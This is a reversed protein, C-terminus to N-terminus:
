ATLSFTSLGSRAAQPTGGPREYTSVGTSVAALTQVLGQMHRALSQTANMAIQTQRKVQEMREMLRDRLLALKDRVPAPLLRALDGLRMPESADPQLMLTLDAVQRLRQKELEAIAQVRENELQCVEGLRKADAQRMADRKQDMLRLLDEHLTLQHQLVAELSTVLHNLKKDM